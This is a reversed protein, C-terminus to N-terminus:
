RIPNTVIVPFGLRHDIVHSSTVDLGSYVPRQRAQLAEAHRM